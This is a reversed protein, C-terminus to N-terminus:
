RDRFRARQRARAKAKWAVLWRAAYRSRWFSYVLVALCGFVFAGTDLSLYVLVGALFVPVYSGHRFRM